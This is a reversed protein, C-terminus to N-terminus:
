GLASIEGSLCPTFKGTCVQPEGQHDGGADMVPLVKGPPLM